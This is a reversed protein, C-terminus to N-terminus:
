EKRGRRHQFEGGEATQEVGLAGAAPLGLMGETAAGGETADGAAAAGGAAAAAVEGVGAAM